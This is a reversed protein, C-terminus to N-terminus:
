TRCDPPGRRATLITEFVPGTYYSLGRVLTRDIRWYREEIGMANLMAAIEALTGTTEPPAALFAMIKETPEKGFEKQLEDAIGSKGIKDQKDIIRLAAWLQEAPFGALTPLASLEKRDSIKIIFKEIGLARLTAYIVAIIEADAAPSAAGVIDADAQTFERYRGAQQREGRWVRGIEYRKFPKPIEPNTAVFRALPVTLDFRLSTDSEKEQSGRVNFIIKQSDTEGGTLVDTKQVASTELPEFGFSEFTRRATDLIWQKLRADAPGYDRFGGPLDPKVKKKPSSNEIMPQVNDHLAIKNLKSNRSVFGGRTRSPTIKIGM